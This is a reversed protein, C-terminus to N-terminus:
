YGFVEFEGLGVGGSRSIGYLGKTVVFKVWTVDKVPIPIDVVTDSGDNNLPGVLIEKGNSFLLTSRQIHSAENPRDCLVIKTITKPSTWYLQIWVDQRQGAALWTYRATTPKKGDNVYKSNMLDHDGSVAVTAEPAINKSEPKPTVSHPRYASKTPKPKHKEDFEKIAARVALADDLRAEKTMETKLEDLKNRYAKHIPAVAKELAQIYRSQLTVLEAPKPRENQAYATSIGLAIVMSITLINRM